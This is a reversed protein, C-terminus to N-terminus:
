SGSLARDAWARAEDGNPAEFRGTAANVRVGGGSEAAIGTCWGNADGIPTNNGSLWRHSGLTGSVWEACIRSEVNRFKDWMLSTNVAVTHTVFKKWGIAAADSISEVTHVGRACAWVNDEQTSKGQIQPPDAERFSEVMFRDLAGLDSLDLHMQGGHETFIIRIDPDDWVPAAM